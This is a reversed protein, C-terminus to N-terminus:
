NQPKWMSLKLCWEMSCLFHPNYFCPSWVLWDLLFDVRVRWQFSQHHLQLELVGISQGGSAFLQSVPFSRSAPSQLCCSFPIVSSSITPRCWQSLPRTQTLELLQHHVPLGPMSCDMPDCLQVHSLSQVSSFQHSKIIKKFIRKLYMVYLLSLM